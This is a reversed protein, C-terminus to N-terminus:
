LLIISTLFQKNILMKGSTNKLYFKNEKRNPDYEISIFDNDASTIKGCIDLSGTGGAGYGSFAITIIADQNLYNNIM